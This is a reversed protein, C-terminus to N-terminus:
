RPALGTDGALVLIRDRDLTIDAAKIEEQNVKQQEIYGSCTSILLCGAAAMPGLRLRRTEALTGSGNMRGGARERRWRIVM